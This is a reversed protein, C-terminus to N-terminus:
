ENTKKMKESPRRVLGKLTTYCSNKGKEYEIKIEKLVKPDIYKYYAGSTKDLKASGVFNGYIQKVKTNLRSTELINDAIYEAYEKDKKLKNLDIDAYVKSSIKFEEKDLTNMNSEYVKLCTIEKMGYSYDGLDKLGIYTGDRRELVIYYKDLDGLKKKERALKKENRKNQIYKRIRDIINFRYIQIENKSVNSQQTM